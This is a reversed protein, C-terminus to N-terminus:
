LNRRIWEESEPVIAVVLVVFAEIPLPKYEGSGTIFRFVLEILVSVGWPVKSKCGNDAPSEDDFETEAVVDGGKSAVIRSVVVTLLM